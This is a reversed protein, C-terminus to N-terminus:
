LFEQYDSIMISLSIVLTICLFIEFKSCLCYKLIVFKRCTKIKDALNLTLNEQSKRVYDVAFSCLVSM